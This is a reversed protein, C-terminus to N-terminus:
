RAGLFVMEPRRHCIDLEVAAKKLGKAKFESKIESNKPLTTLLLGPFIQEVENSTPTLHTASGKTKFYRSSDNRKTAYQPCATYFPRM